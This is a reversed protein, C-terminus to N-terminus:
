LGKLSKTGNYREPLQDGPLTLSHHQLTLMILFLSEIIALSVLFANSRLRPLHNQFAEVGQLKSRKPRLVGNGVVHDLYM